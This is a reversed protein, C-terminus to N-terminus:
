AIELHIEGQQIVNYSTKTVQHRFNGVPIGYNHVNTGRMLQESKLKFSHWSKMILNFVFSVQKQNKFGLINHM